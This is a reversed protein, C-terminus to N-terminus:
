RYSGEYPTSKIKKRFDDSGVNPAPNTTDIGRKRIKARAMKFRRFKAMRNEQYQANLDEKARSSRLADAWSTGWSTKPGDDTEGVAQFNQADNSRRNQKIQANRAKWADIRPTTKGAEHRDLNTPGQARYEDGEDIYSGDDAWGSQAYRGSVLNGWADYAADKVGARRAKSSRADVHGGGGKYYTVSM